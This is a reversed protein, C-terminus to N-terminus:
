AHANERYRRLIAEMHDKIALKEKKLKKEELDEEETLHPKAAFEQLRREHEQHEQRLRQYEDDHAILDQAAEQIEM